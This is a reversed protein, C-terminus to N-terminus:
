LNICIGINTCSILKLCSHGYVEAYRLHSNSSSSYKGSPLQHQSGTNMLNIM